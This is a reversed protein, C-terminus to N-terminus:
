EFGVPPDVPEQVTPKTVKKKRNASPKKARKVSKRPKPAKTQPPPRPAEEKVENRSAPELLPDEPEGEMRARRETRLIAAEQKKEEALLRQRKKQEAQATKARQEGLKRMDRIQKIWAFVQQGGTSSSQLYSRFSEEAKDLNNLNEFYLIGLNYHAEPLTKAGSMSLAQQYAQEAKNFQGSAKYAVGLNIMSAPDQSKLRRLAEFAEIARPYNKKAMSVEAIKSWAEQLKPEAEVALKLSAMAKGWERETLFALGLAYHLCGANKNIQFGQAALLRTRQTQGQKASIKALVCYAGLNTPEYTLAEVCLQHAAEHQEQQYYYDALAVRADVASADKAVLSRLSQLAEKQRGAKAHVASMNEYAPRFGPSLAISRNYARLADTGRGLQEYAVGLNYWGLYYNPYRRTVDDMRDEVRNWYSQDQTKGALDRTVSDFYQQATMSASAQESPAVNSQVSDTDGSQRTATQSACAGFSLCAMAAFVFRNVKVYLNM